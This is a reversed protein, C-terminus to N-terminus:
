RLWLCKYGPRQYYKADFSAFIKGDSERQGISWIWREQKADCYDVDEGFAFLLFAQEEADWQGIQNVDYLEGEELKEKMRLNTMARENGAAAGKLSV